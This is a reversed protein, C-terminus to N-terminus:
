EGNTIQTSNASRRKDKEKPRKTPDEQTKGYLRVIHEARKGIDAHIFIKLCDAIDKLIDGACRGM